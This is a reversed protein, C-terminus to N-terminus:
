SDGSCGRLNFFLGRYGSFERDVSISLAREAVCKNNCIRIWVHQNNGFCWSKPNLAWTERGHRAREIHKTSIAKRPVSPSLSRLCCQLTGNDLDWKQPRQQTMCGMLMIFSTEILLKQIRTQSSLSVNPGRTVNNTASGYMGTYATGELGKM